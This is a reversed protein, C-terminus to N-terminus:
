KADKQIMIRWSLESLTKELAENAFSTSPPDFVRRAFLYLYTKVANLNVALDGVYDSWTTGADVEFNSKLGLQELNMIGTNVHILIDTDFFTYSEDLGLLQKVDTLIKDSM